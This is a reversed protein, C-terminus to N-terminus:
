PAVSAVIPQVGTIHAISAYRSPLCGDARLALRGRGVWTSLRDIGLLVSQM